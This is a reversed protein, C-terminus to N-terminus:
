VPSEQEGLLLRTLLTDRQAAICNSRNTNAVVRSRSHRITEQCQDLLEATTVLPPFKSLVKDNLSTRTTGSGRGRVVDWCSNSRLWYQVFRPYRGQLPRFRILYSVFVASQEEEIMRGHGPDAMRAILIDGKRLRYKELVEKM